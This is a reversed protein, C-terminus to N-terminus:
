FQISWIHNSFLVRGVKKKEHPFLGSLNLSIHLSGDKISKMTVLVLVGWHNEIDTKETELTCERAYDTIALILPFM